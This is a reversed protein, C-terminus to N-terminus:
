LLMLTAGLLWITCRFLSPRRRLSYQTAPQHISGAASDVKMRRRYATSNRRSQSRWTRLWRSFLTPTRNRTYNDQIQLFPTSQDSSSEELLPHKVCFAPDSNGCQAGDELADSSTYIDRELLSPVPATLSSHYSPANPTELCVHRTPMPMSLDAAASM